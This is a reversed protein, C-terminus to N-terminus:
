LFLNGPTLTDAQGAGPGPGDFSAILLKRRLRQGHSPDIISAAKARQSPTSKRRYQGAALGM